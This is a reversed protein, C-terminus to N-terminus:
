CFKPTVKRPWHDKKISVNWSTERNIDSLYIHIEDFDAFQM